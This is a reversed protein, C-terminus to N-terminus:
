RERLAIYTDWEKHLQRDSSEYTDGNFWYRHPAQLVPIESHILLKLQVAKVTQWNTVAAAPLYDSVNQNTLDAIGYRIQLNAVGATLETRESGQVKSYLSDNGAVFYATKIFQMKGQYSACEGVVLVDTNTRVGEEQLWNPLNNAPYGEIAHVSDIKNALNACSNDGAKRVVESLTSLAFQATEQIAILGNMLQNTQQVSEYLKFTGLIVIASLFLSILLEILTFAKM